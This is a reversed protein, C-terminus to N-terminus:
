KKSKGEKMKKTIAIKGGCHECLVVYSPVGDFTKRKYETSGEGEKGCHPCTYQAELTLSEEHEKKEETYGCKPCQYEKARIKVKGTKEDVPKGMVAGKCKPCQKKYVWAIVKADGIARRTFYVVEDTSEPMKVM